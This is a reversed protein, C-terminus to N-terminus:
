RRHVSSLVEETVRSRDAAVVAMVATTTLSQHHEVATFMPSRASAM